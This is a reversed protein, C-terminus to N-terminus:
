QKKPNRGTPLEEAPPKKQRPPNKKAVRARRREMAARVAARQDAPVRAVVTDIDMDAQQGDDTPNAAIESISDADSDGDDETRAGEVGDAAARPGAAATPPEVTPTASVLAAAASGGATATPNVGAEAGGTAVAAAADAAAQEPAAPAAAGGSSSSSGHQEAASAAATPTPQSPHQAPPQSPPSPSLPPPSRDGATAQAISITTANTTANAAQQRARQQHRQQRWDDAAPTVNAVAGASGEALNSGAAAAGTAVAHQQLQAVMAQLQGFLGELHCAFHEPVGPQRALNAVTGVVANWGQQADTGCAAGASQQGEGVARLLLEKLEAEAAELEREREAMATATAAINNDIEEAAENLEQLKAQDREQLRKLKDVRREVITRHTRYPKADRLARQHAELEELANRYIESETGFHEELYPLGGRIKAIRSKRDEENLEEPGEWEMDEFGDGEGPNAAKADALEKQLRKNTEQLNEARRQADQLQRFSSKYTAQFHQTRDAAQARQIQKLAFSGLTANGDAPPGKGKGKHAGSGGKGGGKNKPLGKVLNRHAEPPYASCNRCRPRSAWNGVMGCVGCTWPPLSGYQPMDDSTCRTDVVGGGHHAALLRRAREVALLARAQQRQRRARRHWAAESTTGSSFFLCGSSDALVRVETYSSAAAIGLVAQWGQRVTCGAAALRLPPTAASPLVLTRRWPHRVSCEEASASLM